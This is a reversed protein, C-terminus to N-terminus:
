RHNAGQEELADRLREQARQQVQAFFPAVRKIDGKFAKIAVEAMQAQVAAFPESVEPTTPDSGHFDLDVEYSDGLDDITISLVRKM